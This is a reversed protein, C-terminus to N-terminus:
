IEKEKEADSLNANPRFGKQHMLASKRFENRWASIMISIILSIVFIMLLLLVMNNPCCIFSWLHQLTNIRDTLKWSLSLNNLHMNIGFILCILLIMIGLWLWNFVFSFIRPLSTNEKVKQHIIILFLGFVCVILLALQVQPCPCNGSCIHEQHQHALCSFYFLLNSYLSVFNLEISYGGLGKLKDEKSIAFHTFIVLLFPAIIFELGQYFITNIAEDLNNM